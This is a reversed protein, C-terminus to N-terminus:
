STSQEMLTRVLPKKPKSTLKGNATKLKFFYDGRLSM